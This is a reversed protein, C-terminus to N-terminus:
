SAKVQRKFSWGISADAEPTALTTLLLQQVTVPTGDPAIYLSQEVSLRGPAHNFRTRFAWAADQASKGAQAGALRILAGQEDQTLTASAGPGLHFRITVPLNRGRRRKAFAGPKPILLDEGRLDLGDPSLFLRRMHYVGYRRLYGDHQAELWHGQTSSRAESLVENVGGPRYPGGDPLRSSNTDALVLTSHGATSRLGNVLEDPFHVHGEADCEGGCNVILMRPGDSMQFSLTSAHTHETLRLPPPPGADVIIRTNGASLQQYGSSRAPPTDSITLGLREAQAKDPQGGHWSAPLGDGMTLSSLAGRVNELGVAITAPVPLKRAEYFHSLTLLTEGAHALDLPSRTLIAVGDPMLRDLTDAFLAESAQQRDENGPLVLSGALLGAVAQLRAMSIPLKPAARELHRTWRAIGNLVASRHIHDTGPMVLPAYCIAMMVRTGTIDPAWAAEDYDHFRALWRSALQESHKAEARELPGVARLDRLWAWSHVWQRWQPPADPDDLLATKILPGHGFRCLRGKRLHQGIEPDGPVPDFPVTLLRLPFSGKLRMRHLPSSFAMQNLRESLREALSPGRDGMDRKLYITDHDSHEAIM